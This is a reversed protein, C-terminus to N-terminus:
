ELDGKAEREFGEGFGERWIMPVGLLQVYPPITFDPGCVFKNYKQHNALKPLMQLNTIVNLGSILKSNLPAKHDMQLGLGNAEDWFDNIQKRDQWAPIRNEAIKRLKENRRYVDPNRARCERAYITKFARDGFLGCSSEYGLHWAVQMAISVNPDPHIPVSPTRTRCLRGAEDKNRAEIGNRRLMRGVCAKSVGFQRILGRVSTGTQYLRIMEPEIAKIRDPVKSGPTPRPRPPDFRRRRKPEAKRRLFAAEGRDRVVGSRKAIRLVTNKGLRYEAALARAPTGAAYRDAIEKELVKIREPVYNGPRKTRSGSSEAM